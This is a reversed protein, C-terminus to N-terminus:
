IGQTKLEENKVLMGAGVEGIIWWVPRQIDRLKWIMVVWLGYKNNM